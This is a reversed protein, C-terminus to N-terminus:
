VTLCHCGGYPARCRSRCHAAPSSTATQVASSTATQVADTCIKDVLDGWAVWHSHPHLERLGMVMELLDAKHEPNRQSVELCSPLRLMNNFQLATEVVAAMVKNGVDGYRRTAGHYSWEKITKARWLGSGLLENLYPLLKTAFEIWAWEPSARLDYWRRGKSFSFFKAEQLWFTCIKSKNGDSGVTYWVGDELLM